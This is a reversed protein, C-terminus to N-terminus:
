AGGGATTTVHDTMQKHRKDVHDATIGSTVFAWVVGVLPLMTAMMVAGLCYAAWGRPTVDCGDTTAFGTACYLGHPVGIHDALGFLTGSWFFGARGGRELARLLVLTKQDMPHGLAAARAYYAKAAGKDIAM